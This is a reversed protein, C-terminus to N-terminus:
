APANAKWAHAAGSALLADIADRELGVETLVEVTHEGLGPPARDLKVTLDGFDWFAGPQEVHGYDVHEYRAILGAADNATSAFFAECQDLRVADAPVGAEALSALADVVTRTVFADVGGLADLAARSADTSAAVAIWGDAVEVIRYGPAIGTQEHDLVPTPVIAGTADLYTESCTMVGGALLSGAVFQTEGTRDRHYLALLTSILSGMACLHDMFGLRHWMPRNGEGAGAVEWGCSSQFLQDYGPWDARPGRPGYSSAHCYVLDPNVARVTTEDLGLRRAAPMRLNHHLVDAQALLADLAVRADDAKLDLAVGRKGRQCGFFSWEVWRM